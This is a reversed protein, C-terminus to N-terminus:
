NQFQSLIEVHRQIVRKTEHVRLAHDYGRRGTTRFTEERVAQRIARAFDGDLVLAGFSSTFGDPDVPAIINASHAAAELFTIPLGERASTNLLIWSQCLIREKEEETVFRMLHVNTHRSYRRELETAVAILDGRQTPAGVFYFEVEPCARAVELAVDVRKQPDWRGIWCVTPTDAKAPPSPPVDIPNPLFTPTAALRYLRQARDGVCEAEAYLCQPPTTRLLKRLLANGLSNSFTDYLPLPSGSVPSASRPELGASHAYEISAHRLVEIDDRGWPDQFVLIHNEHQRPVTCSALDPNESIYVDADVSDLLAELSPIRGQATTWISKGIASLAQTYGKWELESAYEYLHVTVGNIVLVRNENRAADFSRAPVLVHVEHGLRLLGEAKKRTLFGFGGHASSPVTGGSSAQYHFYESCLFGVRM